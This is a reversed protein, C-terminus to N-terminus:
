INQQTFSEYKDFMKSDSRYIAEAPLCLVAAMYAAYDMQAVAVTSTVTM